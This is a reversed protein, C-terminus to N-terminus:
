RWRSALPVASAVQNPTGILSGFYYPVIVGAVHYAALFWMGDSQLYSLYRSWLFYSSGSIALGLLGIFFWLIIKGRVEGPQSIRSLLGSFYWITAAILAAGGVILANWVMIRDRVTAIAASLNSLLGERFFNLEMFTDTALKRFGWTILAWVVITVVLM